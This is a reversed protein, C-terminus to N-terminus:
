LGRATWGGDVLLDAGTIYSSADSALFLCPGVLEAPDGWRGLLTRSTRQERLQPDNYSRESMATRFYGPSISNVRIGDPGFDYALARTLSQLGGKAAQYAPNGPFGQHGGISAINIIVGPTQTERWRFAATLSLRYAAELNVTLTQRWVDLGYPDQDPLTIGANNVLVNAGGFSAVAAGWIREAADEDALDCPFDCRRQSSQAQLSRAVGLVRAGADFFGQAIAAGLGQSSGTVVVTKEAVSFQSM